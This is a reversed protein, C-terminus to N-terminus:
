CVDSQCAHDREAFGVLSPEFRNGVLHAVHGVRLLGGVQASRDTEQLRVSRSRCLLNGVVGGIDKSAATDGLGAHALDDLHEVASILEIGDEATGLLNQRIQTHPLSHLLERLSHQLKIEGRNYIYVYTTAIDTEHRVRLMLQLLDPPGKRETDEKIRM